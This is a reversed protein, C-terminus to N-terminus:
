TPAYILRLDRGVEVAPMPVPVLPLMRDLLAIASDQLEERTAALAARVAAV